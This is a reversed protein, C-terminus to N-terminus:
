PTRWTGVLYVGCVKCRKFDATIELEGGCVRCRVPTVVAVVNESIGITDNAETKIDAMSDTV